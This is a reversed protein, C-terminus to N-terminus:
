GNAANGLSFRMLLLSQFSNQLQKGKSFILQLIFSFQKTHAIYGVM